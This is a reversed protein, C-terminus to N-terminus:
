LQDSSFVSCTQNKIYFLIIYWNLETTCNDKGTNDFDSAMCVYFKSESFM